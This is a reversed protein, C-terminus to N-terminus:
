QYHKGWLQLGDSTEQQWVVVASGDPHMAIRPRYSDYNNGGGYTVESWETNAASWNNLRIRGGHRWAAIADGTSTMALELHDVTPEDNEVFTFSDWTDNSADYWSSLVSVGAGVDQRWIVLADGTAGATKIVPDLASSFSHTERLEAPEWTQLGRDYRASWINWRVGDDQRWVAFVNGDDDIAVDPTAADHEGFEIAEGESWTGSNYDFLSAWVHDIIVYVAAADGNPAVALDPSDATADVWKVVNVFPEWSGMSADYFNGLISDFAGDPQRWIAIADGNGAIGLRPSEASGFNSWEILESSGWQDLGANYTSAAVNVQNGVREFIAVANGNTHMVVQGSLSVSPGIAKPADWVDEQRDYYV